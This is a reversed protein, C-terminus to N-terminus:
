HAREHHDEQKPCRLLKMASPPQRSKIKTLGAHNIAGANIM